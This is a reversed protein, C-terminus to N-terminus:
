GAQIDTPSRRSTSRVMAGPRLYRKRNIPTGKQATRGALHRSCVFVVPRSAHQCAGQGCNGQTPAFAFIEEGAGSIEKREKSQETRENKEEGVPFFGSKAFPGRDRPQPQSRVTDGAALAPGCSSGTGGGLIHSQQLALHRRTTTYLTKFRRDSFLRNLSAFLEARNRSVPDRTIRSRIFRRRPGTKRRTQFRM